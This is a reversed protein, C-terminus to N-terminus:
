NANEVPTQDNINKENLADMETLISTNLNASDAYDTQNISQIQATCVNSDAIILNILHKTKTLEM